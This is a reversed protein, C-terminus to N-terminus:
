NETTAAPIVSNRGGGARGRPVVPYTQILPQEVPAVHGKFQMPMGSPSQVRGPTVAPIAGTTPAVVGAPPTSTTSTLESPDIGLNQLRSAVSKAVATPNAAGAITQKAEALIQAKSGPLGLHGSLNSFTEQITQDNPNEFAKKAWTTYATQAAQDFDASNVRQGQQNLTNRQQSYPLYATMFTSLNKPDSLSKADAISSIGAINKSPDGEWTTKWADPAKIATEFLSTGSPGRNQNKSNAAITAADIKGRYNAMAGAVRANALQQNRVLENVQTMGTIFQNSLHQTLPNQGALGAANVVDGIGSQDGLAIKQMGSQYQNQIVPLMAQASQTAAHTEIAQGIQKGLGALQNVTQEGQAILPSYNYYGIAM